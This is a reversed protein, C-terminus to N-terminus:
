GIRNENKRNRWNITIDLYTSKWKRNCSKKEGGVHTGSILSFVISGREIQGTRLSGRWVGENKLVFYLM